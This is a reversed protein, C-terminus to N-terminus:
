FNTSGELSFYKEVPEVGRQQLTVLTTLRFSTSFRYVLRATEKWNWGPQRGQFMAYPLYNTQGQLYSIQFNQSLQWRPLRNRELTLGLTWGQVTQNELRDQVLGLNLNLKVRWKRALYRRAAGSWRWAAWEEELLRNYDAAHHREEWKLSSQWRWRRYPRFKLTLALNRNRDRETGVTSLGNLYNRQFVELVTQRLKGQSSLRLQLRWSGTELQPTQSDLHRDSHYRQSLRFSLSSGDTPGRKWRGSLSNAIELTRSQIEEDTYMQQRLFRGGVTPVYDRIHPDYSYNGYGTDVEVYYFVFRPLARQSIEAKLNWVELPAPLHWESSLEGVLFNRAGASDAVLLRRHNFSARLHHRLTDTTALSMGVDWKEVWWQRSFATKSGLFSYGVSPAFERRLRQYVEGIFARGLLSHLGITGLFHNDAGYPGVAGGGDEIEGRFFLHQNKIGVRGALSQVLYPSEGRDLYRTRAKLGWYPQQWNFRLSWRQLWNLSDRWLGATQLALSHKGAGWHLELRSEEERERRRETVQWDRYFEASRLPEPSTFGTGTHRWFGRLNWRGFRLEQELQWAPLAAVPQPRYLNPHEQSLAMVLRTSQRKSFHKISLEVVQQAKPAALLRYPAYEGALSDFIFFSQAGYGVRRYTGKERGVYVFEVRYDGQGPGVYVLHGASDRRYSGQLSDVTILEQRAFGTANSDLQFLQRLSDSAIGGLPHGPDDRELNWTLAISWSSDPTEWAGAAGLIQRSYAFGSLYLDPVYEFEVRIRDTASIPHRATFTITGAAEDLIYDRDTGNQLLVGNLYVRESGAVIVILREGAAGTLQYPGQKGETGLFDLRQYRGYTLGAHTKLEFNGPHWAFDLGQVKRQFRIFENTRNRLELNGIRGSFTNSQLTLYVQDFDNLRGTLGLTQFPTQTESIVGQLELGPAVEGSLHLFMGSQLDLSGGSQLRLGRTITGSARLSKNTPSANSPSHSVNPSNTEASDLLTPALFEYVGGMVAPLLLVTDGVMLRLSDGELPTQGWGDAAVILGLLLLILKYLNKV